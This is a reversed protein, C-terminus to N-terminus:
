RGAAGPHMADMGDVVILQGDVEVLGLSFSMM